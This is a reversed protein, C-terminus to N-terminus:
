RYTCLLSAPLYFSLCCGTDTCHARRCTSEGIEETLLLVILLHHHSEFFLERTSIPWQVSSAPVLADSTSLYQWAPGSSGILHVQCADHHHAPRRCSVPQPCQWPWLCLGAFGNDTSNSIRRVWALPCSSVITRYWRLKPDDWYPVERDSRGFQVPELAVAAWSARLGGADLWLISLSQVM